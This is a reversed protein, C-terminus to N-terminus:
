KISKLLIKNDWQASDIWVARPLKTQSSAPVLTCTVSRSNTWKTSRVWIHKAEINAVQRFNELSATNIWSILVIHKSVRKLLDYSIKNGHRSQPPSVSSWEPCATQARTRQSLLSLTGKHLHRRQTSPVRNGQLENCSIWVGELWPLSRLPVGPSLWWQVNSDNEEFGLLLVERIFLQLYAGEPPLGVLQTRLRM